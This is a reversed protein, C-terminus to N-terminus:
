RLNSRRLYFLYWILAYKTTWFFCFCFYCFFFCPARSPARVPHTGRRSFRRYYAHPVIQRTPSFSPTEPHSVVTYTYIPQCTADIGQPIRVCWPLEWHEKDSRTRACWPKNLARAKSVGAINWISAFLWQVTCLNICVFWFVPGQGKNIFM